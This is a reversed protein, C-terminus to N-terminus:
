AAKRVSERPDFGRLIEGWQGRTRLILEVVERVAGRGGPNQTVYAAAEQVEPCADAPAVGLGVQRLVPLDPLDDGLYCVNEARFGTHTLLAQVVPWKDKVGQRVLTVGLERARKAVARSKRGTVLGVQGGLKQWWKIAAGDRVHFRKLERGRSDLWISGDTLVGDVDLLLLRLKECRHRLLM